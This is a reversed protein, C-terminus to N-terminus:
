LHKKLQVVIQKQQISALFLDETMGTWSMTESNKQCVGLSNNSLSWKEENVHCLSLRRSSRMPGPDDKGKKRV